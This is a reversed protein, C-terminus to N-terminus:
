GSARRTSGDSIAGVLMGVCAGVIGCVVFTAVVSQHHDMLWQGFLEAPVLPSVMLGVIAGVAGSSNWLPQRAFTKTGHNQTVM